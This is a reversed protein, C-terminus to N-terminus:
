SNGDDSLWANSNRDSSSSLELSRGLINGLSEGFDSGPVLSLHGVELTDDVSVDSLDVELDLDSVFLLGM